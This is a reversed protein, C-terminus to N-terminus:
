LITAPFRAGPLRVTCQSVFVRKNSAARERLEEPSSDVEEVEAERRTPAGFTVVVHNGALKINGILYGLSLVLFFVLVPQNLLFAHLTASM